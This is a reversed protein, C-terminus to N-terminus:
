WISYWSWTFTWWCVYAVNIWFTQPVHRPSGESRSASFKGIAQRLHDLALLERSHQQSIQVKRLLCLQFILNTTVFPVYDISLIHINYPYDIYVPQHHRVSCSQSIKGYVPFTRMGISKWINWLPEIWWGSIMLSWTIVVTWQEYCDAFASM